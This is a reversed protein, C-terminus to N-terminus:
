KGKAEAQAAALDAAMAPSQLLDAAIARGLKEGEVIDSPYHVGAVVRSQSIAKARDLLAPAHAPFVAGLVLADVYATTAHGSPYAFDKAPFLAHVDQHTLYPRPRAFHAKSDHVIGGTAHNVGDLLQFTAPFKDRTFDAGIASAFLQPSFAADLKAEAILAPTRNAQADLERKMDAAEEPSGAKPPPPISAELSQVQAPTLYDVVDRAHLTAAALGLVVIFFPLRTRLLSM